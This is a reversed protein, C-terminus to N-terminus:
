GMAGLRVAGAQLNQRLAYGSGLNMGRPLAADAREGHGYQRGAVGLAETHAKMADTHDKTAQDVANGYKDEGEGTLFRKMTMKGNAIDSIENLLATFGNLTPGWVLANLATFAQGLHETSATLEASKQNFEPNMIQGARDADGGVKRNFTNDSLNMWPADINLARAARLQETPDKIAKIGKMAQLLEGGFDQNGYSGPANSIGFQSAYGMATPDSTIRDNFGKAAGGDIGLNQLAASVNSSSGNQINLAGMRNGAEAALKLGDAALKAAEGILAFRGVVEAGVGLLDATKGVLPSLGGANFRSTRLFQTLRRSFGDASKRAEPADQAAIQKRARAIHHGLDGGADADGSALARAHEGELRALRQRPGSTFARPGGGRAPANTIQAQTRALARNIDLMAPQNNLGTAEAMQRNLEILRQYPGTVFRTAKGQKDLAAAARDSSRASAELAKQLVDQGSVEFSVAIADDPM